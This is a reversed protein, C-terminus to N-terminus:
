AAMVLSMAAINDDQCDNLKARHTMTDPINFPHDTDTSLFSQIQARYTEQLPHRWVGNM